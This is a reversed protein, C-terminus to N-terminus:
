RSPSRGGGRYRNPGCARRPPQTPVAAVGPGATTGTVSLTAIGLTSTSASPSGMGSMSAGMAAGRDYPVLQLTSTGAATSVLLDARNGAALLLETVPPPDTFRGSDLGLLQLQQGELRLSLYRSTCANIIRWRERQGPRALLVPDLQGNVLVQAGERGTSLQMASAAAVGGSAGITIDSIVLIRERNVAIPTASPPDAVIIAGYLGGFVQEAVM